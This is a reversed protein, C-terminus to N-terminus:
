TGFASRFERDAQKLAERQQRAELSEKDHAGPNTGQTIQLLMRVAQLAYQVLTLLPHKRGRPNKRHDRDPATDATAAEQLLVQGSEDVTGRPIPIEAAVIKRVKGLDVTGLVGATISTLQWLFGVVDAMMARVDDNSLPGRGLGASYRFRLDQLRGSNGGLPLPANAGGVAAAGAAQGSATSSDEGTTGGEVEDPSRLVRTFM